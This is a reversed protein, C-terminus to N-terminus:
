ANEKGNTQKDLWARFNPDDKVMGKPLKSLDIKKPKKSYDDFVGLWDLIYMAPIPIWLIWLHETM